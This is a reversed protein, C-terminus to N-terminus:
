KHRSGPQGGASLFAEIAETEGHIVHGADPFIRVEASAVQAELRRRTGESDLLADQAGVIALVPMTLHRLAQDTFIPVRERRHKFHATIL